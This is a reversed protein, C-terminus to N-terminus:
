IWMRTTKGVGKSRPQEMRKTHPSDLPEPAYTLLEVDFCPHMSLRSLSQWRSASFSFPFIRLSFLISPTTQIISKASNSRCHRLNPYISPCLFRGHGISIRGDSNSCRLKEGIKEGHGDYCGGINNHWEDDIAPIDLCVLGKINISRKRARFEPGAAGGCWCISNKGDLGAWTAKGDHACVVGANRRSM